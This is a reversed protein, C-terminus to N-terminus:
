RTRRIVIATGMGGGICLSALGTELDRREMEYLLTVVIRNASAGVPHGLAIAGGNVNTRAMIEDYSLDHEEALETIVGIAQAAFAENLEILEMASLPLGVEALVKHVAPVPGLGMCSPEVAAQAYGLIEARTTLRLEEVARESTVLVSSAGDNVGSSNGATVTGDPLFAPRLKALTDVTTGDRPYEDVKFQVTEQKNAVDIPIIEREFHGAGIAAAAKRQSEAAFADQRERSIEYRRAVNEATVGMHYNNFVDTLGDVILHDQLEMNGFRSGFRTVPPVLYPARSMSEAGSAVAVHTRGLRIGDAALMISKMGSGCLMNVAYGPTEVPIDAYVAAQRGPGMGQGATLITGLIVEDVREPPVGADALVAKITEAALRPAPIDKLTGGFSGIATRRAAVIYTKEV